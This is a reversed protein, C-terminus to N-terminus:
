FIWSSNELIKAGPEQKFHFWVSQNAADFKGPQNCCYKLYNKSTINRNYHKLDGAYVIEGNIHLLDQPRVLGRPKKLDCIGSEFLIHYVFESCFFRYDNRHNRQFLNGFLGLYNYSYMHSDLLFKEFLDLVRAYQEPTVTIGLIIGPLIPAKKYVGDDLREHKFCGIFPNGPRRRGFNFMYNLEEDFALAAHTYEDGKIHHILRSLVTTSRLLVVYIKKSDM